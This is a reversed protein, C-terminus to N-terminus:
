HDREVIFRALEKLWVGREGFFDVAHCAEHVLQEAKTRSNEIGLLSPYTLKGLDVDRGPKKGLKTQDGTVDLLDDAIQFALGICHGYHRLQNRSDQDAVASVAGLELAGAILAGTKMKHIQTLEVVRTEATRNSDNQESDSIPSRLIESVAAFGASNTTNQVANRNSHCGDNKAFQGGQGAEGAALFSGREAELDLVQGGVMGAGGAAVALLRVSEAIQPANLRAAAITEFAMTLLCDGALVALAEGFVRHSTPRGRRFDDDDMSPLDDHILSYTHIMEIACAAPIAEERRGGCVDNALLVLVPRLRKGGAMLSYEVATKLSSPWGTRDLEKVLAAEVLTRLEELHVKFASKSMVHEPNSMTRYPRNGGKEQQLM